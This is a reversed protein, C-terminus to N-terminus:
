ASFNVIAALPRFQVNDVRPGNCLEGFAVLGLGHAKVALLEEGHQDTLKRLQESFTSEPYDM